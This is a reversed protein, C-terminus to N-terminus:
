EITFSAAFNKSFKEALDYYPPSTHTQPETPIDIIGGPGNFFDAIDININLTTTQNEVLAFAKALRTTEYFADAGPHYALLLDDSSGVNGAVNARGEVVVFRYQMGWSWYMGSAASLPDSPAFDLPDSANQVPDLGIGFSIAQYSGAKASFTYEMAPGDDADALILDTLTSTEGAGNEIKINSLYFKLLSFQLANVGDVQTIENWEMPVGDNVMNLKVLVKSNKPKSPVPETRDCSSMNFLLLAFAAILISSLRKM